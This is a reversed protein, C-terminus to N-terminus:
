APSPGPARSRMLAGPHSVLTASLALQERLLEYSLANHPCAALVASPILRESLDSWTYGVGSENRPGTLRAIEAIEDEKLADGLANGHGARPNAVVKAVLVM